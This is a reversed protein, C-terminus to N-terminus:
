EDGKEGGKQPRGDMRDHWMEPPHRMAPDDFDREGRTKKRKWDPSPGGGGRGGRHRMRMTMEDFKERQEPDLQARIKEKMELLLGRFEKNIAQMKDMLAKREEWKRKLAPKSEAMAAKVADKQKGSLKLREDLKEIFRDSVMEPERGGEQMDEHDEHREGEPHKALAPMSLSMSVALVAPMFARM